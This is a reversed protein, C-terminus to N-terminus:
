SKLLSYRVCSMLFIVICVYFALISSFVTATPTFFRNLSSACYFEWMELTFKLEWNKLEWFWIQMYSQLASLTSTTWLRVKGQSYLQGVTRGLAGTTDNVTGQGNSWEESGKELLLYRDGEEQPEMRDEKPLKYLYFRFFASHSPSSMKLHQHYNSPPIVLRCCSRPWQLLQDTLQQGGRAFCLRALVPADASLLVDDLMFIDLMGKEKWISGTNNSEILVLSKIRLLTTKM